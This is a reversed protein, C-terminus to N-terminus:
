ICKTMIVKAIKNSDHRIFSRISSIADAPDFKVSKKSLLDAKIVRYNRKPLKRENFSVLLEKRSEYKKILKPSPKKTNFTVFDVKEKGIFGNISSIYDDLDFKETHGKKNVLNCNYVVKAKSKRMAESIGDVILNPVISCYHNGPGIIILDAEL